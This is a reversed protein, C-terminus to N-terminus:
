SQKKIEKQKSGTEINRCFIGIQKIETIKSALNANEQIFDYKM